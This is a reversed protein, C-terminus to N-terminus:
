DNLDTTNDMMLPVSNLNKGEIQKELVLKEIEEKIKRESYLLKVYFLILGAGILLMCGSIIYLVNMTTLINKEYYEIPRSEISSSSNKVIILYLFVILGLVLYMMGGLLLPNYMDRIIFILILIFCVLNGGIRLLSFKLKKNNMEKREESEGAPNTYYLDVIEESVFFVVELILISISVLKIIRKKKSIIDKQRDFDM